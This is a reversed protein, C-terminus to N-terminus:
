NHELTVEGARPLPAMLDLAGGTDPLAQGPGRTAPRHAGSAGTYPRLPFLRLRGDGPAASGRGWSAPLVRAAPRTRAPPVVRYRPGEARLDLAELLVPRPDEGALEPAARDQPKSNGLVRPGWVSLAAVACAALAVGRWRRLARPADLFAESLVDQQWRTGAGADRAQGLAAHVRPYLDELVHEAPRAALLVLRTRLADRRKILSAPVQAEPAHSAMRRMLAEAEVAPLTESALRTEIETLLRRFERLALASRPSPLSENSM